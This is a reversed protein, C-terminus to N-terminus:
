VHFGLNLLTVRCKELLVHEEGYHVEMAGPHVRIIGPHAEM